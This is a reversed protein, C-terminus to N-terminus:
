KKARWRLLAQFANLPLGHSTRWREVIGYLEGLGDPKGEGKWWPVLFAGARDIEGKSYINPVWEVMNSPESIHAPFESRVFEQPLCHSQACM